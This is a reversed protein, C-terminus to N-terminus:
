LLTHRRQFNEFLNLHYKLVSLIFLNCLISIYSLSLEILVSFNCRTGLVKRGYLIEFRHSISILLIWMYNNCKDQSMGQSSIELWISCIHLFCNKGISLIIVFGMWITNITETRFLHHRTTNAENIAGAILLLVSSPAEGAQM